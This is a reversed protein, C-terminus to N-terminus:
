EMTAMGSQKERLRKLIAAHAALEALAEEHRGARLLAQGLAYHAKPNLPDLELSRRFLDIAEEYKGDDALMTGLYFHAYPDTPALRRAAELEPRAEDRRGLYLCTKALELRAEPLDPDLAVARRLAEISGQYDLADGLQLGLQVHLRADQLGRDLAARLVALAEDPHGYGNLARAHTVLLDVDDPALAVARRQEELGEGRRAQKFYVEALYRHARVSGPNHAVARRLRDDAQEIQGTQLYFAGLDVLVEPDEPNLSLEKEFQNVAPGNRGARAHIVGMARHVGLLKPDAAVVKRLEALGEEDRGLAGLITGRLVRAQLLTPDAGLAAEVNRLAEEDKDTEHLARALEHLITADEPRRRALGGLIAAAEATRGRERLARAEELRGSVSSAGCALASSSLALLLGLCLNRGTLCARM